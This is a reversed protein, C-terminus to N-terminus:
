PYRRVDDSDPTLGMRKAREMLAAVADVVRGHFRKVDEDTVQDPAVDPYIPKGVVSVLKVPKPIPTGARGTFIPMPLKFKDYVFKTLPNGYVHFIHDAQPCVNPVIPVGARLAVDAFGKRRSWDFTYRKKSPRLAERMGGPAIGIMDGGRLREILQGRTASIFGIEHLASGLGPIKFMLDDGVIYTRRGLFISTAHATIFLEYSAMSHTAAFVAGGERPVNDGDVVEYDHYHALFTMFRHWKAAAGGGNSAM